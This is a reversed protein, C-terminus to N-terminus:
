FGMERLHKALVRSKEREEDSRSADAAMREMARRLRRQEEEYQDLPISERHADDLNFYMSM